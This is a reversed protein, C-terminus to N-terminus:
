APTRAYRQHYLEIAWAPPLGPRDGLTAALQALLDEGADGAEVLHSTRTSPADGRPDDRRVEVQPLGALLHAVAPWVVPEAGPATRESAILLSPSPAGRAAPPSGPTAAQHVHRELPLTFAVRRTWESPEQGLRLYAPEALSAEGMWYHTLHNEGGRDPGIGGARRLRRGELVGPVALLDGLHEQDYWADFDAEAEPPVTWKLELLVAPGTM